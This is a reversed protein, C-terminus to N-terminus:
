QATFPAGYHRLTVEDDNPLAALLAAASQQLRPHQWGPVLDALPQLVFRREHLRPHPLEVLPGEHIEDELALLDLDIPRPGWRQEQGRERGGLREVALLWRMLARPPLWTEAECVQNLYWPQPVPGWPATEYIPSCRTLRLWRADHLRARAAALQAARDGLNSGLAIWARRPPQSVM